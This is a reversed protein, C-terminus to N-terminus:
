EVSLTNIDVALGKGILGFVDFHWELLKHFLDFPLHSYTKFRFITKIDDDYKAGIFNENIWNVPILIEENHNIETKLDSLPRLIPKVGELFSWQFNNGDALKVQFDFDIEKLTLQMLVGRFGDYAVCEIVHPLYYSLEQLQLEEM